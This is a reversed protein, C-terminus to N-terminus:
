PKPLFISMAVGLLRHPNDAIPLAKVEIIEKSIYAATLMQGFMTALRPETTKPGDITVNKPQGVLPQIQAQLLSNKPDNGYTSILTVRGQITEIESDGMRDEENKTILNETKVHLEDLRQARSLL